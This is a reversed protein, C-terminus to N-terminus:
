SQPTCNGRKSPSWRRCSRSNRLFELRSKREMIPLYIESPLACASHRAPALDIDASRSPGCPGEKTEPSARPPKLTPRLTERAKSGQTAAAKRQRTGRPVALERLLASKAPPAPTRLRPLPTLRARSGPMCGPPPMERPMERQRTRSRVPEQRDSAPTQRESERL